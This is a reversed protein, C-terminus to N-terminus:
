RGVKVPSWMEDPADTVDYRNIARATTSRGTMPVSRSRMWSLNKICRRAAPALIVAASDVYTASLGDQSVSSVSAREAIGPQGNMWAAQWAVAQRLWEADRTHVTATDLVGTHMSVLSNAGTLISEDQSVDVGTLTLVDDATAWM